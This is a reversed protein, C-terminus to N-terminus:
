NLKTKYGTNQVVCSVRANFTAASQSSYLLTDRKLPPLAVSDDRAGELTWNTTTDSWQGKVLHLETVDEPDKRPKSASGPHSIRSLIASHTDLECCSGM